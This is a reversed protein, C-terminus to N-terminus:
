VGDEEDLTVSYGQVCRDCISPGSLGHFLREVERKPKGCFACSYRDKCSSLVASGQKFDERDSEYFSSTSNLFAKASDRSVFLFVAEQMKSPAPPKWFEVVVVWGEVDSPPDAELLFGGQMEALETYKKLAGELM